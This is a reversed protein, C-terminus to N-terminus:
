MRRLRLLPVTCSMQSRSTPLGKLSGDALNGPVTSQMFTVTKIVQVSSYRSSCQLLMQRTLSTCTQVCRSAVTRLDQRKSDKSSESLLKLRRQDGGMSCVLIEIGNATEADSSNLHVSVAMDSNRSNHKSVINALCENQSCNYTCTCDKSSVGNSNLFEVAHKTIKRAETSEKVFGVAGSGIGGDPAHGASIDIIKTM